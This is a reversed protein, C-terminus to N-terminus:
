DDELLDELNTLIEFLKLMLKPCNIFYFKHCNVNENSKM